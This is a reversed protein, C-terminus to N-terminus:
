NWFNLLHPYCGSSVTIKRSIQNKALQFQMFIHTFYGYALSHIGVLFILLRYNKSADLLLLMVMFLKKLLNHSQSMLSKDFNKWRNKRWAWVIWLDLVHFCYLQYLWPIYRFHQLIYLIYFGNQTEKEIKLVKVNMLAIVSKSPWPFLM